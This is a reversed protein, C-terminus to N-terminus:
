RLPSRPLVGLLIRSCSATSRHLADVSFPFWSKATKVLVRDSVGVHESKTVAEAYSPGVAIIRSEDASLAVWSDLPARKLAEFRPDIRM